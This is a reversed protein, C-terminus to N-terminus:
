QIQPVTGVFNLVNNTFPGTAFMVLTVANGNTNIVPQTAGPFKFGTAANTWQVVNLGGANQQLWIWYTKPTSPINSPIGFQTTLNTLVLKYHAEYSNGLSCDM